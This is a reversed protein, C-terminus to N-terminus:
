DCCMFKRLRWNSKFNLINDKVIMMKSSPHDVQNGKSMGEIKFFLVFSFFLLLFIQGHSVHVFNLKM